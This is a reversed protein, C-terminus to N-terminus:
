FKGDRFKKPKIKLCREFVRSFHSINTFGLRYGTETVSYDKLLKAAENMRAVQFYNYITDGFVQRFLMKMKTPSMAIRTALESLNPTVSLDDLIISRIEYLKEADSRNITVATRTTRETLKLFLLYILEFTKTHYQLHALQAEPKIDVFHKLIHGMETPMLTNIVFSPNLLLSKQLDADAAGLGLLDVLTQRSMNIVLFYIEQHAPFFVETFFNGTGLEVECGPAFLISETQETDITVKRCDFKLTLRDSPEKSMLRKLLFEQKLRYRHLCLGIGDRLFVEQIFGEGLTKPLYVRDNNVPMGFRDGFTKGFHFDQEVTFEFTEAM